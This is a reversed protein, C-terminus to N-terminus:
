RNAYLGKREISEDLLRRYLPSTMWWGVRDNHDDRCTGQCVLCSLPKFSCFGVRDLWDIANEIHETSMDIVRVPKQARLSSGYGRRGFWYVDQEFSLIWTQDTYVNFVIPTGFFEDM